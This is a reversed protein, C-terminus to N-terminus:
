TYEKQNLQGSMVRYVGNALADLEFSGPYIIIQDIFCLNSLLNNILRHSKALGGTFICADVCGNLAAFMAGIEKQIQYIMAEYILQVDKENLRKEIEKFNNTGLYGKLGSNKSLLETLEEKSISNDYILDILGSLPLAGAREISFPGMGLLADNVDIIRGRKVAAISFGGGLHAVIFNSKEIPINNETSAKYVCFKINLAHSRSKREITPVGSIKAKPIMEDVSVPDVIYAPVSFEKSLKNALIAGLNAAHKSYTQNQYDRIMAKNIKYVGGPLPKLPGGRSAIADFTNLQGLFPKIDNHLSTVQQQFSM